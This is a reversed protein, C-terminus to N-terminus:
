TFLIGIRFLIDELFQPVRELVSERTFFTKFNKLLKGAWVSKENTENTNNSNYVKYVMILLIKSMKLNNYVFHKYINFM